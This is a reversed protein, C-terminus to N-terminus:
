GSSANLQSFDIEYLKSGSEEFLLKSYQLLFNEFQERGEKYKIAIADTALPSHNLHRDKTSINFYIYRISRKKLEAAIVDQDRTNMTFPSFDNNKTYFQHANPDHWVSWNDIVNGVLEHENVYEVISIMSGFKRRLFQYKNEYGLPYSLHEVMEEIVLPISYYIRKGYKIGFVSAVIAIVVLSISLVIGKKQKLIQLYIELVEGIVIAAIISFIVLANMWYRIDHSLFVLYILMVFAYFFLYLPLRKNKKLLLAFPSIFISAAIHFPMKKLVLLLSGLTIASPRYNSILSKYTEEDIGPHGFFFPYIPNLFLVFNKIYWYGCFVIIPIVFCLLNRLIQSWSRKEKLSLIVIALLLILLSPLPTYKVSLALGMLIGGISLLAVKRCRIWDVVYIIAGIELATMATDVSGTASSITFGKYALLFLVALVAARSSYYKLLFGYIFILFSLLFAFHLAHALEYGSLVIGVAFIVEMLKPINGYLYGGGVNLSVRHLAAMQEAQPFHYALEDWYFPPLMCALFIVVSIITFFTLSLVFFPSRYAKKGIKSKLYSMLPVYQPISSLLLVVGTILLATKNLLGLLGLILSLTGIEGLGILLATGLYYLSLRQLLKGKKLIEGHILRLTTM